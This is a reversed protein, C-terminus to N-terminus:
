CGKGLLQMLLQVGEERYERASARPVEEEADLWQVGRDCSFIDICNHNLLLKLNILLSPYIQLRRKM